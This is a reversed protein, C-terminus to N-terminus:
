RQRSVRGTDFVGEHGARVRSLAGEGGDFEEQITRLSDLTVCGSVFTEIVM